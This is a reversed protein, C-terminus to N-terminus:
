LLTVPYDGRIILVDGAQEANGLYSFMLDGDGDILFRCPKLTSTVSDLIMGTIYGLGSGTDAPIPLGSAINQALGAASNTYGEIYISAMGNKIVAKTSHPQLTDICSFQGFTIDASVDQLSNNIFTWDSWSGSYYVRYAISEYPGPAGIQVKMDNDNNFSMIVVEGQNYFHLGPDPDDMDAINELPDVNGAGDAGIGNWSSMGSVSPLNINGFKDPPTGNVTLPVKKLQMLIWDLNLQHNDSFPFFNFM